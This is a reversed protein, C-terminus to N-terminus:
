GGATPLVPTCAPQRPHAPDLATLAFVRYGDNKLLPVAAFVAAGRRM